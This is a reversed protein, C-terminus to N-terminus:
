YLDKGEEKIEELFNTCYRNYKAGISKASSETYKVNKIEVQKVFEKLAKSVKGSTIGNEIIDNLCNEYTGLKQHLSEYGDSLYKKRNNIYDDNLILKMNMGGCTTENKSDYYSM